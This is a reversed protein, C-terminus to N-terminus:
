IFAHNLTYMGKQDLLNIARIVLRLDDYYFRCVQQYNSKISVCYQFTTLGAGLFLQEDSCIQDAMVINKAEGDQIFQQVVWKLFDSKEERSIFYEYSSLLVSRQDNKFIGISYLSGNDM